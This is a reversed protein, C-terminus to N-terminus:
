MIRGVSAAMEVLTFTQFMVDVSPQVQSHFNCLNSSYEKNIFMIELGGYFFYKM